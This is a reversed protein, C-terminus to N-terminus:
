PSQQASQSESAVREIKPPSVFLEASLEGMQGHWTAAVLAGRVRVELTVLVGDQGAEGGVGDFFQHLRDILLQWLVQSAFEFLEFCPVPLGSFAGSLFRNADSLEPVEGDGVLSGM